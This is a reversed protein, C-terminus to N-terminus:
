PNNRGRPKLLAFLGILIMLWFILNYSSPHSKGPLADKAADVFWPLGEALLFFVMLALVALFLKAYM